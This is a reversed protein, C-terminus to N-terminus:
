HWPVHVGYVFPWPGKEETELGSLFKKPCVHHRTPLPSPWEAAGEGERRGVRVLHHHLPM